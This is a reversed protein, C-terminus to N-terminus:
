YVDHCLISKFLCVTIFFFLLLLLLLFLIFIYICYIYIYIYIYINDAIVCQLAPPLFFDEGFKNQPSIYCFLYM